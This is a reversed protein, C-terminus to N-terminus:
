LSELVEPPLEDSLQAFLEAAQAMLDAANCGAPLVDEFLARIADFEAASDAMVQKLEGYPLRFAAHAFGRLSPELVDQGRRPAMPTSGVFYAIQWLVSTENNDWTAPPRTHHRLIPVTLLKPFKWEACMRAAAVVHNTEFEDAERLFLGLRCGACEHVTRTYPEGLVHILLPIGIDQLLGILFAEEARDPYVKQAIQRALCARLLSDRWFEAADFSDNSFARMSEALKFGLSTAKLYNVGLVVAARPITTVKFRLGFYASNAVKLLRASLAPDVRIVEAFEPATADPKSCLELLRIAV